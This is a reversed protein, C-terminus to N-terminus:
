TSNNCEQLAQLQVGRLPVLNMVVEALEGTAEGRQELVHIHTHRHLPAGGSLISVFGFRYIRIYMRLYAYTHTPVYM